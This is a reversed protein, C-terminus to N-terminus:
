SKEGVDELTSLSPRTGHRMEYFDEKLWGAKTLVKELILSKGNAYEGINAVQKSALIRKIQTYEKRLNEDQELIRKTDLHNKLQLCDKTMVYTNRRMNLPTGTNIKAKEGTAPDDKGFGPQRLAYRGHIGMDGLDTYGVLSLAKIVKEINEEKEVIIDIDIVAKACLGKISTSGVHEISLFPTNHLAEKLEKKIVNFEEKWEVNHEELHIQM